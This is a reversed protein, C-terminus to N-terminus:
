KKNVSALIWICLSINDTIGDADLYEDPGRRRCERNMRVRACPPCKSLYEKIESKFAKKWTDIQFLKFHVIIWVVEITIQTFIKWSFKFTCGCLDYGFVLVLGCHRGRRPQSSRQPDNEIASACCRIFEFLLIIMMKTKQMTLVM